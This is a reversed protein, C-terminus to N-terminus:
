DTASKALDPQSNVCAVILHADAQSLRLWESTGVVCEGNADLIADPTEGYGVQTELFVPNVRWPRPSAKNPEVIPEVIPEV